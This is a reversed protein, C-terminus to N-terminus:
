IRNCEASEELFMEVCQLRRRSPLTQQFSRYCRVYNLCKRFMPGAPLSAERHALPVASQKTPQTAQRWGQKRSYRKLFIQPTKASNRPNQLGRQRMEQRTHRRKEKSKQTKIIPEVERERRRMASCPKHLMRSLAVKSRVNECTDVM